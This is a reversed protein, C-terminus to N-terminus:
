RECHPACTEPKVIASTTGGPSRAAHDRVSAMANMAALSARAWDPTSGARVGTSTTSPPVVPPINSVSRRRASINSSGLRRSGKASISLWGSLAVDSRICLARPGKRRARVTHLAQEPPALAITVAASHIRDPRLVRTKAAPGLNTDPQVNVPKLARPAIAGFRTTREIPAAGSQPETFPGREQHELALFLHPPSARCRQGLQGTKGYTGLRMVDGVGLRRAGGRRPQHAARELAGSYCRGLEVIDVCMARAGHLVVRHLGLRETQRQPALYMADGDRRAFPLDTVGEPGTARDLRRDGHERDHPSLDRGGAAESSISGAHSRVCTVPTPRLAVTRAASEFENPIPM